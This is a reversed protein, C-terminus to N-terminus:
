NKEFYINMFRFSLGMFVIEEKILHVYEIKMVLSKLSIHFIFHLINKIMIKVFNIFM